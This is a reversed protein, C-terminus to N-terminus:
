ENLGKNYYHKGETDWWQVIQPDNWVENGIRTVMSVYNGQGPNYRSPNNAYRSFADALINSHYQKTKSKILGHKYAYRVNNEADIKSQDDSQRIKKNIAMLYDQEPSVFYAHNNVLFYPDIIDEKNWPNGLAKSHGGFTSEKGVLGLNTKINTKSRGTNIAISDLMNTPIDALNMNGKTKLTIIKKSPYMSQKRSAMDKDLEKQHASAFLKNLYPTDVEIDGNPMLKMNSKKKSDYFRYKSVQERTLQKGNYYWGSNKYELTSGNSFTIKQAM